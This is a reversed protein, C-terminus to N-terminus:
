LILLADGFSFFRYREEIATAYIHHLDAIMEEQSSVVAGDPTNGLFAAVLALLSSHPLHFNTLLASVTKFSYGPYIFVNTELAGAQVSPNSHSELTRTSTTGIALVTRKEEKAKRIRAAVGEEILTHESHLVNEELIPNRLPLFTGLGVHLTVEDWTHGANTLRKM